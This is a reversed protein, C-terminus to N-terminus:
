ATEGRMYTSYNIFNRGTLAYSFINDYYIPNNTHSIKGKGSNFEQMLQFEGQPIMLELGLLKEAHEKDGRRYSVEGNKFSLNENQKLWEVEWLSTKNLLDILETYGLLELYKHHIEKFRDDYHGLHSSDISLMFLKGEDTKPLPIDYYSYVQLATSGCFKEFYNSQNIGILANINASLPNVYDDKNIKVVHNDWTMGNKIAMDIGISHRTDNPNLVHIGRFTYYYNIEYGQIMNLLTCSLLSDLDNTLTLNRDQKKTVWQPFLEKLQKNM